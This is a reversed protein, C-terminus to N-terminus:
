LRTKEIISETIEAYSLIGKEENAIRSVFTYAISLIQLVYEVAAAAGGTGLIL